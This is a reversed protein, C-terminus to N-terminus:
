YDQSCIIEAYSQAAGSKETTNSALSEIMELVFSFYKEADEAGIKSSIKGIAMAAIGRIESLPDCIATRLGSSIIKLYPLMDSPNQILESVSGIVQCAGEKLESVRGRLCYDVIPIILSLSPPDIYHAFKM